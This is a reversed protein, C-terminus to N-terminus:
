RCGPLGSCALSTWGRGPYNECTRGPRHCSRNQGQRVCEDTQRTRSVCTRDQIPGQAQIPRDYWESCVGLRGFFSAGGNDGCGVEELSQNEDVCSRIPNSPAGCLLLCTPHWPWSRCFSVFPFRDLMPLYCLLLFNHRIQHTIATFSQLM